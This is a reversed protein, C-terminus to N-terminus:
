NNNEPTATVEATDTTATSDEDETTAVDTTEEVVDTTAEDAAPEEVTEVTSNGATANQADACSTNCADLPAGDSCGHSCSGQGTDGSWSGGTVTGSTDGNQPPNGSDAYTFYVTVTNSASDTAANSYIAIHRTGGAPLTFCTGISTNCSVDTDALGVICQGIGGVNMGTVCITLDKGTPNEFTAWLVYGKNYCYGMSNGPIKCASSADWDIIEPPSAAFAPTASAVAVAPVAWAAGKVITRRAPRPAPRTTETAM